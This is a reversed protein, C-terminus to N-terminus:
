FVKFGAGGQLGLAVKAGVALGLGIHECGHSYM